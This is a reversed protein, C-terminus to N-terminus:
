GRPGPALIRVRDPGNQYRVATAQALCRRFDLATNLPTNELRMALFDECLKGDRHYGWVKTGSRNADAMVTTRATTRQQM